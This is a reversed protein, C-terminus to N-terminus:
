HTPPKPAVPPVTPAAMRQNVQDMIERIGVGASGLLAGKIVGGTNVGVTQLLFDALAGLAPALIPLAWKPVKPIWTKLGAILLPVVLPIIMVLYQSLQTIVDQTPLVHTVAKLANTATIPIMDPTTFVPNTQAMAAFSLGLAALAILKKM